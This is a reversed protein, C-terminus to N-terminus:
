PLMEFLFFAQRYACWRRRNYCINEQIMKFSMTERFRGNIKFRLNVSTIQVVGTYDKTILM